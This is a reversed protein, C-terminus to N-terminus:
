HRLQHKEVVYKRGNTVCKSLIDKADYETKFYQAKDIDDTLEILKRNDVPRIETRFIYKFRGSITTTLIYVEM